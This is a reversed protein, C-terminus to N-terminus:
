CGAAILKGAVEACKRSWIGAASGNGSKGLLFRFTRLDSALLSMGSRDTGIHGLSLDLPAQPAATAAAVCGALRAKPGSGSIPPVHHVDAQMPGAAEAGLLGARLCKDHWDGVPKGSREPM